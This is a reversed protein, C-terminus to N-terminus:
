NAVTTPNCGAAAAALAMCGAEIQEISTAFSMRLHYPAGYSSGDITAVGAHEIFYNMVDVDSQMLLGEPTKQGVLGAVNPFVYFAGDPKQCSIGPVKNLLEVMRDRREEFEHIANNVCDQPGELAIVAAAQCMAAASTTSQTMLLHIRSILEIPGAGYGIRWGTFAYTKSLGNIVLTRNKLEPAVNLPSLHRANGYVFHEYIEDTMIWVHPNDKLIVSIMELEDRTYVAGTPNNPTNLIIWRTRPTIAKRLVAGDLKFGNDPSCMLIVPKGGHLLVMDPYSVWYPAPVIVEDGENLTAAFANYIVHKAGCGVIVEEPLFVLQNERNLKRAIAVKLSPIGSTATYRTQGDRLAQIGGEVIHSPTAFDPEGITFDIINRGQSRLAEVRSKAAISPSPKVTSLYKAFM